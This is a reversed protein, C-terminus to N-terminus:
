FVAGVGSLFAEMRARPDAGGEGGGTILDNWWRELDARRVSRVLRRFAGLATPPLSFRRVGTAILAAGFLPDAAQEGCYSLPKGAADAKQAILRIFSLFGIDLPDYRQQTMAANRDAAFYFQALDNGGISFFDVHPAIREASWAAAPTEIMAGVNISRPAAGGRQGHIAVEKDLLARALVMESATTVMPFLVYLDKGAAAGLLARLQPRLLGPRDVAMRLGRWGMAPNGEPDRNMYDASKDAGLDATRFVVPKDGARSLVTEYLRKQASVRPLQSGILFQLETRFLGVGAAGTRDLHEMDLTLGANIRLEIDVGDLTRAPADKERLYAAQRESRLEIKQQFSTLVDPTPRLFVVGEEGDIAVEDGDEAAAIAGESGAVLPVGLARAVIAVHSTTAGEALVLGRLRDRDFELLAAPGLSRAFVVAADPMSTEDASEASLHRLLRFSLDDLDHLRERLYPDRAQSLRARNQSAVREVASEATLGGSAAAEKLRGAWGADQALLRYTELVERPEGDLSAKALMQDLSAKLAAIAEDLRGAEAEPDRSFVNHKPTPPEVFWVRGIAVGEVVGVGRRREPLRLMEGVEQTASEDLLEGSAAIEALLTAVAQAAEIEDDEYQRSRQNQLVLVGLAKGSRLLPVGLFSHLPDEGTEPRYSFAPHLPADATVLPAGTECVRGVLGEGRAMVTEHVAEPKLGETSYLELSDDPQRLYISCVDAEVHGAIIATLHDLREQPTAESAVVDHMRRLLGTIGGGTENSLSADSRRGRAGDFVGGRTM